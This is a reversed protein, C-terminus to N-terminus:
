FIRRRLAKAGAQWSQIALLPEVSKDAWRRAAASVRQLFLQIQLTYIPLAQSGKFIAFILLGLIAFTILGILMLPLIMFILSVGAWHTGMQANGLTASAALVALGIIVLVALLLPAWIQWFAQQRHQSQPPASPSPTNM